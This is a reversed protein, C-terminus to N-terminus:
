SGPAGPADVTSLGLPAFMSPPGFAITGDSPRPMFALLAPSRDTSVLEEPAACLLCPVAMGGSCGRTRLAGGGSVTSQVLSNAGGNAVNRSDLSRVLM